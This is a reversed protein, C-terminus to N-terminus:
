RGTPSEDILRFGATDGPDPKRVHGNKELAWDPCDRLTDLRAVKRTAGEIELVDWVLCSAPGTHPATFTYLLRSQSYVDVRAGSGAIAPTRSYNHVSYRYADPAFDAITITEKGHGDFYDFDLKAWPPSALSGGCGYNVRYGAPTWLHADLDKPSAHWTLSIQVPGVPLIPNMELDTQLAARKPVTVCLVKRAYDARQFRISQPGQKLSLWYAGSTNTWAVTSGSTVWVDRIPRGTVQDTVVGEIVGHVATPEGNCGSMGIALSLAFILALARRYV